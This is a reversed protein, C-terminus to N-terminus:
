IYKKEPDLRDLAEISKEYRDFILISYSNLPLQLRLSKVTTVSMTFVIGGSLILRALRPLAGSWFTFVGENKFIRVACDFSNKYEKSAELSQM